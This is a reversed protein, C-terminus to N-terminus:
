GGSHHPYQGVLGPVTRLQSLVPDMQIVQVQYSRLRHFVSKAAIQYHHILHTGHLKGTM